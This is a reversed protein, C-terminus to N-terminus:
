RRSDTPRPVIPFGAENAIEAEKTRAGVSMRAKAQFGRLKGGIPLISPADTSPRPFVYPRWRHFRQRPEDSKPDVHGSQTLRRGGGKGAMLEHAEIMIELASDEVQGVVMAAILADM